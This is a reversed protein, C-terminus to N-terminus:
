GQHDALVRVVARLLPRRGHPAGKQKGRVSVNRVLRGWKGAM